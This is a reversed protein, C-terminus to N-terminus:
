PVIKEKEKLVGHSLAHTKISEQRRSVAFFRGWGVHETNSGEGRVRVGDVAEGM